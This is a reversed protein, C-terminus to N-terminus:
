LIVGGKLLSEIEDLEGQTAVVGDLQVQEVVTFGSVSNLTATKFYPQGAYTNYNADVIPVRTAVVVYPKRGGLEGATCSISGGRQHDSDFMSLGGQVAQGLGGVAGEVSKAGGAVLTGGVLSFAGSIINAFNNGQLPFQTLCNGNFTYLIHTGLNDDGIQCCCQGTLADINYRIYISKGIIDKPSIKVMGIYPLFLDIQTFPEYDLYNGHIAPVTISGCDVTYWERSLSTATEDTTTADYQPVSLNGIKLTVASGKNYDSYSPLQNLAIVCDMPNAVIKDILSDFTGGWLYSSLSNLSHISASSGDFCYARCMGTKIFDANPLDTWGMPDGGDELPSDYFTGGVWKTSKQIVNNSDIYCWYMARGLLKTGASDTADFLVAILRYNMETESKLNMSLFNGGRNAEIYSAVGRITIYMSPNSPDYYEGFCVNCGNIRDYGYYTDSPLANLEVLYDHTPFQAEAVTVFDVTSQITNWWSKFVASFETPMNTLSVTKGNLNSPIGFREYEKMYIASLSTGWPNGTHLSGGVLPKLVDNTYFEAGQMTRWSPNYKQVPEGKFYVLQGETYLQTPDLVAM